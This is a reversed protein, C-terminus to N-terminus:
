HEIVENLLSFQKSNILTINIIQDSQWLYVRLQVQYTESSLLPQSPNVLALRKTEWYTQGLQWQSTPITPSSDLQAIVNQQSDVVVISTTYDASLTEETYWWLDVQLNELDVKYSQLVMRNDFFSFNEQILRDYRLWQLNMNNERTIQTEATRIHGTFQLKDFVESSTNWRAVWITDYADIFGLSNAEYTSPFLQAQQRMAYISTDPLRHELYYQMQFDGGGFDILVADGDKVTQAMITGYERWSEKFRYADVNLMGYIVIVTVLFVRLDRPINCLGLSIVLAVAPTIQSLRYDFLFNANNLNLIFTIAVPLVIWGWLFLHTPNLKLRPFPKFEVMVWIALGVTLVWQGSFFAILYRRITDLDSTDAPTYGSITQLQYPLIVGIVWPLFLVGMSILGALAQWRQQGRLVWLVYLGQVGLVWAGYYQTYLLAVGSVLWVGFWAREYTRQWRFLGWVGLMVLWVHLSYARAEQAIYIEMDAIALMLMAIFPVAQPFQVPIRRTLEKALPYMTAICLLSPLVSLFRLALESTGAIRVWLSILGFYLPPHVDSRLVAFLDDQQTAFWTFGEDVWISQTTLNVMRYMLGFLLIFTLIGWFMTSKQLSM